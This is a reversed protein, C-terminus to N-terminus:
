VRAGKQAEERRRRAADPDLLLVARAVAARLQGTTQGPAAPLVAAEVAAAHGDSLVGVADLIVRARPLDIRGAELAAATAPRDALDLALGRQARGARRTRARALGGEDGTFGGWEGRFRGTGARASPAAREAPCTTCSHPDPGPGPARAYDRRDPPADADTLAPLWALFEEPSEREPQPQPDSTM